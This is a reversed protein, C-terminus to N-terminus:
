RWCQNSLVPALVSIKESKGLARNAAFKGARISAEASPMGQTAGYAFSYPGDYAKAIKSLKEYYGPSPVPMAHGWRTLVIKEVNGDLHAVLASLQDLLGRSLADRDGRLLLSRGASGPAWPQYVTLVSGENKRRDYPTDAIVINTLTFPNAVWNNYAGKFIKKPMLLNAVMYSGYKFPMLNIRMADSLNTFQRWAVMLPTAVVVHRCRINHGTGDATTYMVNAGTSDLSIRWAFTGKMLRNEGSENIRDILARAIASNGGKFCYSPRDVDRILSAGAAASLMEVGGCLNARCISDVIAVFKPSYGALLSSLPKNGIDAFASESMAEPTDETPLSRLLSANAERFRKLESTINDKAQGSLSGFWQKDFFFNNSQAPLKQPTIGLREFLKGYIGDIQNIEAPGYSFAIQKYSDGRSQGGLDAYQELLVFDSDKLFYGASLGGIGGGVIVFDVQKEASAPFEPFEHDRFRHGITFDDGTWESLRPLAGEVHDSDNDAVLVRRKFDAAVASAPFACCSALGLLVKLFDRRSNM